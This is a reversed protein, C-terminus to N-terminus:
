ISPDSTVANATDTPIDCSFEEFQQLKALIRTHFALLALNYQKNQLPNEKPFYRKFNDDLPFKVNGQPFASAFYGNVFNKVLNIFPDELSQRCFSQYLIDSIFRLIDEKREGKKSSALDIFTVRSNTPDLFLNSIHLDGHLFECLLPNDDVAGISHFEAVRKGIIRFINPLNGVLDDLNEIIYRNPNILTYKLLHSISSGEAKRMFLLMSQAGYLVPRIIESTTSLFKLPEGTPSCYDHGNDFEGELEGDLRRVSGAKKLIWTKKEEKTRPNIGFCPEITAFCSAVIIDIHNKNFQKSELYLRNTRAYLAERAADEKTTKIIYSPVPLDIGGRKVSVSLILSKPTSLGKDSIFIPTEPNKELLCVCRAAFIEIAKQDFLIPTKMGATQHYFTEIIQKAKQSLDALQMASCNNAGSALLLLGCLIKKM